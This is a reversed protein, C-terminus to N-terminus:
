KLNSIILSVGNKSIMQEAAYVEYGCRPCGKGPQAKTGLNPKTEPSFHEM